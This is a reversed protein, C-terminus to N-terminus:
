VKKKSGGVTIAIAVKEGADARAFARKIQPRTALYTARSCPFRDSHDIVYDNAMARCVRGSANKVRSVLAKKDADQRLDLDTFGIREQYRPANVVTGTQDNQAALPAAFAVLTLGLVLRGYESRITM